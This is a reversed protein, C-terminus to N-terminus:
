IIFDIQMRFILLCAFLGPAAIRFDANSTKTAQSLSFSVLAFVVVFCCFGELVVVFLCIFLSVLIFFCLERSLHAVPPLKKVIDHPRM